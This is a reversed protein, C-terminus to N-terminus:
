GAKDTVRAVGGLHWRADDNRTIAGGQNAIHTTEVHKDAAASGLM